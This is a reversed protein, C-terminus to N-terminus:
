DQPDRFRSVTQQEAPAAADAHGLTPLLGALVVCMTHVALKMRV